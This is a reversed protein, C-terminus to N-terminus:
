IISSSGTWHLGLQRKFYTYRSHPRAICDVAALRNARLTNSTLPISASGISSPPSKSRTLVDFMIIYM